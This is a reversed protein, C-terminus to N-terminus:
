TVRARDRVQHWDAQVILKEVLKVADDSTGFWRCVCPSQGTTCLLFILLPYHKPTYPYIESGVVSVHRNVQLCFPTLHLHM